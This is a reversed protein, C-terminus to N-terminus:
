KAPDGSAPDRQADGCLIQLQRALHAKVKAAEEGSPGPVAKEDEYLDVTLMSGNVVSQHRARVVVTAVFEDNREAGRVVVLITSAAGPDLPHGCAKLAEEAQVSIAKTAIGHRTSLPDVSVELRVWAGDRVYLSLPGPTSLVLAALISLGTM